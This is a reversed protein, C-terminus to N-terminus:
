SAIRMTKAVLVYSSVATAICFEKKNVEKFVSVKVQLKTGNFTIIRARIVVTEGLSANAIFQLEYGTQKCDYSATVNELVLENAASLEAVLVELALAKTEDLQQQAVVFEKEIRLKKM